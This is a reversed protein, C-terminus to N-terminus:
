RRGLFLVAAVTMGGLAGYFPSAERQHLFERRILEFSMGVLAGTGVWLLDLSRGSLEGIGQVETPKCSVLIGKAMLGQGTRRAGLPLPRGADIAAVGVRGADPGLRPVPLDGNAPHAAGDEFYEYLGLQQNFCSYIM